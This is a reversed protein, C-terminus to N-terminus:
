QVTLAGYACYNACLHCAPVCDDSFVIEKESVGIRAKLPNFKGTYVLSCSLQCFLCQTCVAQNIKINKKEM